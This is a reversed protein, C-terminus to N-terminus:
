NVSASLHFFNRLKSAFKWTLWIALITGLLPMGIIPLTYDVFGLSSHNQAWYDFLKMYADYIISVDLYHEAMPNAGSQPSYVVYVAGFIGAYIPILLTSCLLLPTAIAILFLTPTRM